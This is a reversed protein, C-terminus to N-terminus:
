VVGLYTLREHLHTMIIVDNRNKITGSKVRFHFHEILERDPTKELIELSELVLSPLPVYPINLKLALEGMAADEIRGLSFKRRNRLFKIAVDRTILRNNGAAFEAGDYAKAGGYFSNAPFDTVLRALSKFNIYSNNTTLFMYDCTTREIFYKLIAMSKWRLFQYSDPFRVEFAPYSTKLKESARIKPTFFVLPLGIFLDLWALATAFWRNKWRLYEHFSDWTSGLRKLQSGHFHVLEFNKPLENLLWTKASGSNFITTWPERLAHGVVILVKKDQM